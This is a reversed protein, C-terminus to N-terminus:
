MKGGGEEGERGLVKCSGRKATAAREAVARAEKVQQVEEERKISSGERTGTNTPPIPYYIHNPTNPITPFQM